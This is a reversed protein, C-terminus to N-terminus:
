LNSSPRLYQNWCRKRRAWFNLDKDVDNIAITPPDVRLCINWKREQSDYSLEGWLLGCVRRLNGLISGIVLLVSVFFLLELVNWSKSGWEFYIISSVPASKLRVYASGLCILCLGTFTYFSVMWYRNHERLLLLGTIEKMTPCKAAYLLSGGGRQLRLSSEWGPSSLESVKRTLFHEIVRVYGVIRTITAAKDFFAWWFPIVIMLPALFLIGSGLQIANGDTSGLAVKPLGLLIGTATVAFTLFTIQCTKLHQLETRLMDREGEFYAYRWDTNPLNRLPQKGIM